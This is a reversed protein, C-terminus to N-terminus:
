LIPPKILSPTNYSAFSFNGVNSTTQHSILGSFPLYSHPAFAMCLVCSNCGSDQFYNQPDSKDTTTVKLDQHCPHSSKQTEVGVATSQHKFPMDSVAWAQIPLTLILFILSLKKFM